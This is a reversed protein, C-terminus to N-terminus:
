KYGREKLWKYSKYNFYILQFLDIFVHVLLMLVNVGMVKIGLTYYYSANNSFSVYEKFILLQVASFFGVCLMLAISIIFYNTSLTYNVKDKFRYNWEIRHELSMNSYDEWKM